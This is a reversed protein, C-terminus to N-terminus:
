PPPSLLAPSLVPEAAGSIIGLTPRAQLGPSAPDHDAMTFVGGQAAVCGAPLPLARLLARCWLDAAAVPLHPEEPEAVM